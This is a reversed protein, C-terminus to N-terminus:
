PVRGAEQILDEVIATQIMLTLVMVSNLITLDMLHLLLKKTWKWTQRSISYSNTMHASNDVYGMHRNCDHIIAPKMTKGYEDSFNGEFPLCHINALM